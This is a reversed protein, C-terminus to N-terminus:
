GAQVITVAVTGISSGATSNIRIATVPYTYATFANTTAGTIGSSQFWVAATSVFVSSGTYDMSHEINFVVATSNVAASISVSFPSVTIDPFYTTAYGATTSLGTQTIRWPISAM